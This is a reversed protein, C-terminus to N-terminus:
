KGVTEGGGTEEPMLNQLLVFLVLVMHYSLLM